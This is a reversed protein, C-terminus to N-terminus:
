PYTTGAPVFDTAKALYDYLNQFDNTKLVLGKASDLKIFRVRPDPLPELWFYNSNNDKPLSIMIYGDLQRVNDFRFFGERNTKVTRINSMTSIATMVDNRWRANAVDQSFDALIINRLEKEAEPGGQQLHTFKAQLQAKQASMQQTEQLFSASKESLAELTEDLDGLDDTAMDLTEEAQALRKGINKLSERQAGAINFNEATEKLKIYHEALAEKKKRIPLIREQYAKQLSRKEMTRLRILLTRLRTNNTITERAKVIDHAASMQPLIAHLEPAFIEANSMPVFAWTEKALPMNDPQPLRMIGDTRSVEASSISVNWPAGPKLFSKANEPLFSENIEFCMPEAPWSMGPPIGLVVKRSSTEVKPEPANLAALGTLSGIDLGAERASKGNHVLDLTLSTVAKEGKNFVRFCTRTIGLPALTDDVRNAVSMTRGAYVKAFEDAKEIRAEQLRTRADNLKGQAESIAKDPLVTDQIKRTEILNVAQRMEHELNYIDQQLSLIAIETKAKDRVSKERLATLDQSHAADIKAIEATLADQEAKIRDREATAKSIAAANLEALRKKEAETATIQKRIKALEANRDAIKSELDRIEDSIQPLMSTRRIEIQRLIEAEIAQDHRTLLDTIIEKSKGPLLHVDVMQMRTETGSNDLVAVLGEIIRAKGCGAVLLAIGLVCAATTTLSRRLKL